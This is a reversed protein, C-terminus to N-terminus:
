KTHVFSPQTTQVTSIFISAGIDQLSEAARRPSDHLKVWDTGAVKHVVAASKEIRSMLREATTPHFKGHGVTVTQQQTLIYVFPRFTPQRPISGKTKNNALYMGPSQNNIDLM